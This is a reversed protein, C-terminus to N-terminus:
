DLIRGFTTQLLVRANASGGVGRATVRFIRVRDVTSTAGYTNEAANENEERVVDTVYEVIFRPQEQVGPINTAAQVSTGGTWVGATEWRQAQGFPAATWLGNAGTDNFGAVGNIGLLFNEADALAAEAAHFALM